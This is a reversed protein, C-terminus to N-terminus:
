HASGEDDQFAKQTYHNRIGGSQFKQRILRVVIILDANLTDSKLKVIVSGAGEKSCM